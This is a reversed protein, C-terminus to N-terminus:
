DVALDAELVDQARDVMDEADVEVDFEGVEVAAGLMQEIIPLRDSLQYPLADALGRAGAPM